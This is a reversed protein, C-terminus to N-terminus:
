RMQSTKKSTLYFTSRIWDSFLKGIILLIFLKSMNLKMMQKMFDDFSNKKQLCSFGYFHQNINKYFGFYPIIFLQTKIVLM